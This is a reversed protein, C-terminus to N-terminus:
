RELLHRLGERRQTIEGLEEFPDILGVPSREVLGEAQGRAVSPGIRGFLDLQGRCQSAHVRLTDTSVPTGRVGLERAWPAHVQLTDSPPSWGAETPELGTWKMTYLTSGGIETTKVSYIKWSRLEPM